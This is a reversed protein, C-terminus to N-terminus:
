PRILFFYFIVLLLVPFLLQTADMQPGKPDPKAGGQRGQRVHRLTHKLIPCLRSVRGGGSIAQFTIAGSPKHLAGGVNFEGNFRLHM